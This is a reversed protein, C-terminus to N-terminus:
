LKKYSADEFRSIFHLVPTYKENLKLQKREARYQGNLVPFHPFNVSMM